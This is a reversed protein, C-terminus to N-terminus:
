PKEEQRAKIIKGYIGWEERPVERIVNLESTRIKGDSFEPVICKDRPVECEIIALDNWYRGYMLAWHLHSVHIGRRCDVQINRDISEETSIERLRYKFRGDHDSHYVGEGEAHVSKYLILNGNREEIGFYEIYDDIGRFPLIVRANNLLEYKAYRSMIRAQSWGCLKASSNGRAEVSSNGWAVVSSNGRAVVSSNGRAVVSSNERAEVSSNERAVVSSNERAEVSSNEWAEVSSNRFSRNIYIVNQWDNRIEIIGQFDDAIANFEAQSKVIVKNM